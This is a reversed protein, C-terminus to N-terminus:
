RAAARRVALTLERLAREHHDSIDDEKSRAPGLTESEVQGLWEDLNEGSLEFDLVVADEDHPGFLEAWYTMYDM